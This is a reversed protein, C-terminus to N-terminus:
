AIQESAARARREERVYVGLYGGLAGLTVTYVAAVLFVVAFLVAMRVGPSGSAGPPVIVFLAVVLTAVVAAPIAAFVGSVTGVKVGDREHLYGAVAGGLVPSFPIFSLLVTVAAGLLADLMLSRSAM